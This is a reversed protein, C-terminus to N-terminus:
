PLSPEEKKASNAVHQKEISGHAAILTANEKADGTDAAVMLKTQNAAMAIREQSQIRMSEKELEGQIRMSEKQLEFQYEMQKQQMAGEQAIMAAQQAGENQAQIEAIKQQNMEKKAKRVRYSLISIAQKANQTYMVVIADSMDLYGNAMDQQFLMM